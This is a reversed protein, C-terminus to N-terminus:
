IVAREIAAPTLGLGDLMRPIVGAEARTIGVLLHRDDLRKAGRESAARATREWALKASQGWGPKAPRRAALVGLPSPPVVGVARLAHDFERDLADAVSDATLRLFQLGDNLRASPHELIALLLHEAEITTSGRSAAISRANNVITRLHGRFGDNM